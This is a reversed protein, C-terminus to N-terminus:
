KTQTLQNKRDTILKAFGKGKGEHKKYYATLEELTNIGEIEQKFKIDIDLPNELDYNENDNREIDQYIDLFHQKCAKKIITKLAMEKFWERWIYDTKAVKRHKDIDEKSLITIFEGRKNQIVCYGGIIKEAKQNFPDTFDHQYTINGDIKAFNFTDGEYVLQVDVRSEPYAILMKNKYAQYGYSIGTNQLTITEGDFVLGDKHVRKFVDALVEPTKTQMWPNKLAGTDKKKELLLRMCYAAFREIHEPDYGNLSKIIDQKNMQKQNLAKISASLSTLTM